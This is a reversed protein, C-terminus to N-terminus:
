GWKVFSFFLIYFKKQLKKLRKKSVPNRQTTKASPRYVLCAELECLDAQRQRRFAMMLPM